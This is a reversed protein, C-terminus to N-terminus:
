DLERSLYTVLDAFCAFGQKTQMNDIQVLTFRWTPGGDATEQWCRLLFVRYNQKTDTTQLWEDNSIPM